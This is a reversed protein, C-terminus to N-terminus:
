LWVIMARRLRGSRGKLAITVGGVTFAIGAVLLGFYAELIAVPVEANCGPNAVCADYMAFWEGVLLLVSLGITVLIASSWVTRSSTDKPNLIGERM